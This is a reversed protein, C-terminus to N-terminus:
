IHRWNKRKVVLHIAQVTIGYEAALEANSSTKLAARERIALVKSADLKSCGNREGRACREPHLRSPHNDGSPMRGPHLRTWHRDGRLINEPKTHQWNRGKAVMDAANETQTGAFLHDPNVCAPNDCKHLVNPRDEPPNGFAAAFSLRHALVNRRRFHFQGYGKSNKNSLWIWCVDTKTVKNWFRSRERDTLPSHLTFM